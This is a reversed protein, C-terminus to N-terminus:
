IAGSTGAPNTTATQWIITYPPEYNPWVFPAIYPSTALTGISRGCQPCFSWGAELKRGCSPCFNWAQVNVTYTNITWNSHIPCGSQGIQGACTCGPSACNTDSM